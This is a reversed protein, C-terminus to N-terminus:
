KVGAVPTSGAVEIYIPNAYFWLDSWAAVDFSVAKKGAIPSAGTATALHDPCGDFQSSASHATTCPITLRTTDNANTYVDALPNGSADTEFPVAAPMNTGRVRVYQSATVAPIRFTMTYFTSGDVFSTVAQWASAGTGNFTKLVATSLNKAADPVSSLGTTTGDAKLWATNAPWAGSYGATGPVRYGSVQGGILDIHDLVPMNLPVNLGIQALSPNTFTYPSFNAGSPDRVAIGVVIDSGAPVALKEGMTACGDVSLSTKNIAANGAIEGVLADAKGTCAVFSLRDILQGQTGFSNGTRLGDVVPQPRIKDSGSRVLTYNRQYEGPYFDQTSRRDDPGFNGRNHWDSSAFFWFNRGEGLLADWVGGVIGGYVGTGGFTTGGVSDTQVGNINNRLVQYEGRNASAGHGPQTEMGFAVKPATNNFDRLSEVNFGADGDPNFQGARELHAPVYYSADPHYTAMWKLAELTKLHGKTGHGVGNAPVLKKGTANWSPDTENASGPVSCDYANTVGRSTDTDARDFCYEWQALANANGAPTYGPTSPLTATDISKPVQGTIVSMSIHEHGPGVSEIGLFLPLNKYANFYEILPYQFETISQWRWMNRNPSTGSVDGKPTVGSNEWTTNADKGTIYPYAPTALTPDEVLTCNRNGNGGHGAQVFWDLGWPTETKDTAKKILKEMSITGDSCTTHNHFDGAVYTGPTKAAVSCNVIASVSDACTAAVDGDSVKLTLTAPGATTCTFTPNQATADSLTGASATWGYTLTSPAADSDHATASLAISGGVQVEAPNANVGDIAPCVNLVGNVLVSGTRPAEKCSLSVTVNATTRAVVNFSASGACTTSGDVTTANLTISYGTGAPLGGITASLKTAASLDLAGTKSFGNPGVITYTASNITQGGALQLALGVTGTSESNSEPATTGPVGSCGTLSTYGCFALALTRMKMVRRAM